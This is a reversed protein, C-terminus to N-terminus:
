RKEGFMEDVIEGLGKCFKDNNSNIGGKMDGIIQDYNEITNLLKDMEEVVIITAKKKAVARLFKVQHNNVHEGYDKRRPVVIPVKGIQLPM